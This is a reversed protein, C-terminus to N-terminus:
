AAAGPGARRAPTRSPTKPARSRIRGARRATGATSPTLLDMVAHIRLNTSMVTSSRSLPGASIAKPAGDDLDDRGRADDERDIRIRVATPMVSSTGIMDRRRSIVTPMMSNRRRDAPAASRACDRRQDHERQGEEHHDPQHEDGVAKAEV